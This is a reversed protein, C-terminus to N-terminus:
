NIGEINKRNLARAGHHVTLIDIRKENSIYYIIRYNGEVLERVKENEFEPTMKGARLHSKLIKVRDKIKRVQRKAYQRSDKSIYQAMDKLDENAQISWNIQVM